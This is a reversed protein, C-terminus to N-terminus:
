LVEEFSSTNTLIIRPNNLLQEKRLLAKISTETSLDTAVIVTIDIKDQMNRLVNKIPDSNGTEVEIATKKGNKEILIDPRGNIVEEVLVKYGKAKYYEAIKLKWFRHELGNFKPSVGYGQSRLYEKGKLTLDLLVIKGQKTIIDKDVIFGKEKLMNKLDNGTKNNLGLREYRKVTTSIPNTEIDLLFEKVKTNENSNDQSYIPEIQNNKHYKSRLYTLYRVMFNKVYEDTIGGKKVPVLPFKVLCTPIRGKIKVLGQGIRLKDLYDEQGNELFLAKKSAKVDEEHQLALVIQCHSNGAVYHPLLSSHQTISILGQGFSRIERYINEISNTTEKEYKSKPFLNHAEEFILVHRLKDTEGQSLRYLHIWRLILESFFVRVPKPLEQDLEFIVPKDLLDELKIPNRTNFCVAHPGFTFSKLIRLTSQRWELERAYSRRKDSELEKLGDFFNPWMKPEIRDFGLEKFKKEYIKMFVHAVGQGSIHSKELVECIVALWTKYNIGPPARFPNWAFPVVQRGITFILLNNLNPYIKRDLSYLARWGRKWDVVMFPIEKQLLELAFVMGINTKGEGTTAVIVIDKIFDEERLYLPYIEKDNYVIQGLYFEGSADEKSPPVLLIKNEGPNKNLLKTCILQIYQELEQRQEWDSSLYTNWLSKAKLSGIVPELSRCMQGVREVDDYIKM